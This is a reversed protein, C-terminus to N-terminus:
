PDEFQCVKYPAPLYDAWEPRHTHREPVSPEVNRLTADPEALRPGFGRTASPQPGAAFAPLAPWAEAPFEVAANQSACPAVSVPERESAPIRKSSFAFAPRQDEELM